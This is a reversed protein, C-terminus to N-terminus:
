HSPPKVGGGIFSSDWEAADFGNAAPASGEFVEASAGPTPGQVPGPAPPPPRAGMVRPGYISVSVVALSILAQHKENVVPIKYHRDVESIAEALAKAESPDLM